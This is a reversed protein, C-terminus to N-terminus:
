SRAFRRWRRSEVLVLQVTSVCSLKLMTVVLSSDPGAANPTYLASAAVVILHVFMVIVCHLRADLRAMGSAM